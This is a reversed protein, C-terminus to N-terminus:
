GRNALETNAEKLLRKAGIFRKLYYPTDLNDIKVKKGKSSAHIFLNNGLYIGVHSPFSAYTRFFVLDGVSLEDRHIEEGKVFQERATRPLEIGLFGYVKKVYASCDIGLISNGGFKYPIDLLKKAFIILKNSSDNQHFEESESLKRIDEEIIKAVLENKNEALVAAAPEELYLKQGVKLSPSELENIEMLDDPDMDFKRAIKLITDGKKTIYFRPGAQKVLLKQGIRLKASRLNNLGKIDQISRAYKRSISSLSDGHKVTHYINKDSIKQPVNLTSQQINGSSKVEAATDNQVSQQIPKTENKNATPITIKSGPKLKRANVKNASQLEKVSVNYMRAIEALSDGKKITHTTKALAASASMLFFFVALAISLTRASPLVHKKM